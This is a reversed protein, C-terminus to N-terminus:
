VYFNFSPNMNFIAVTYSGVHINVKSIHQYNEYVKALLVQLILKSLIFVLIDGWGITSLYLVRVTSGVDVLSERRDHNLHQQWLESQLLIFSLSLYNAAESLFLYFVRM